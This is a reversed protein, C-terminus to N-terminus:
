ESLVKKPHRVVVVYPFQPGEDGRLDRRACRVDKACECISRLQHGEQPVQIVAFGGVRRDVHGTIFPYFPCDVVKQVVQIRRDCLNGGEQAGSLFLHHSETINCRGSLRNLTLSSRSRCLSKTRDPLQDFQGTGQREGSGRGKLRADAGKIRRGPMRSDQFGPFGFGLGERKGSRCLNWDSLPKRVAPQQIGAISPTYQRHKDLHRSNRPATRSRM